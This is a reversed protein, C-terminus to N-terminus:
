QGDGSTRYMEQKRGNQQRINVVVNPSLSMYEVTDQKLSMNFLELYNNM